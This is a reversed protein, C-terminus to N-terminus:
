KILKIDTVDICRNAGQHSGRKLVFGTKEDWILFSRSVCPLVIFDVLYATQPHKEM